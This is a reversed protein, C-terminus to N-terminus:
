EVLLPYLQSRVIASETLDQRVKCEQDQIQFNFSGSFYLNRKQNAQWLTTGVKDKSLWLFM